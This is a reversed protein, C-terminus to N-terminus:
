AIAYSSGLLEIPRFLSLQNDRAHAGLGRAHIWIIAQFDCPREGVREAARAYARALRRYRRGTPHRGAAGGTAARAAWVDITVEDAFGVLNAWFARVKPAEGGFGDGAGLGIPAGRLIAIAKSLNARYGRYEPPRDSAGVFYAILQEAAELNERWRVQPSLAAIVAAARVRPIGYRASLEAAAAQARPYWERGQAREHPSASEYAAVLRRIWAASEAAERRQRLQRRTL